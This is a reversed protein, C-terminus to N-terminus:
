GALWQPCYSRARTWLIWLRRAPVLMPTRWLRQDVGELHGGSLRSVRESGAATAGETARPAQVSETGTARLVQPETQSDPRFSPLASVARQLDVARPRTYQDSQELTSHRMLRQVVRPSTGQRDLETAFQCRLAHFDFFRGAADRYPVGAAKLDFRLMRAGGDALDFAPGGPPRTALWARLDAAVDLPLPQVAEDGNKTYAAAVRVVPPNADLEFAHTTASKIENFRLGTSVVARYLLARQPGSLAGYAPGNQAAQILAQLEEPGLTRRRHRLDEKANYAEVHGLPSHRLRETRVLWNVFSRVSTLYRNLTAKSRARRESTDKGLAALAKQVREGKLDSLRAIDAEKFLKRVRSAFLEAHKETTDRALMSQKWEALHAAIPKKEAEAPGVDEPKLYGLRILEAERDRRTKIIQVERERKAAEAATENRDTSWAKVVRRGNEDTYAFSWKIDGPRKRFVSAM